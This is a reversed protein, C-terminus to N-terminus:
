VRKRNIIKQWKEIVNEPGVSPNALWLTEGHTSYSPIPSILTKGLARLEVFMQYDTPYEGSTHKKIIYKCDILTKITAAFTMTTSNSLKWWCYKTKFVQTIEGGNEIEPNGGDKADIYRDPHDYLTVIDTGMEIGEILVDKSYPKHIYDSEIYYIIDNDSFPQNLTWEYVNRFSQASSGLSTKIPNLGSVHKIMEDTENSTNDAYIYLGDTGFVSCFNTLCNINNVYTPKAKNYGASEESIRYINILKAM